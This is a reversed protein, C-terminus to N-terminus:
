SVCRDDGAAARAEALGDGAFEGPQAGSDGHEVHVLGAGLADGSAEGAVLVFRLGGADTRQAAERGRIRENM